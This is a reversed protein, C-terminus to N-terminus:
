GILTRIASIVAPILDPRWRLLRFFLLIATTAQGDTEDLENMAETLEKDIEQPM